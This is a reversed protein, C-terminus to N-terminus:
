HCARVERLENNQKLMVDLNVDADHDGFTMQTQASSSMINCAPMINSNSNSSCASGGGGSMTTTVIMSSQTQSHREFISENPSFRVQPPSQNSDSGSAYQLGTGITLSATPTLHQSNGQNSATSFMTSLISEM